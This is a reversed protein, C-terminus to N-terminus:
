KTELRVARNDRGNVFVDLSITVRPQAQRISRQIISKLWSITM